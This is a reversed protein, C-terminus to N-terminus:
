TILPLPQMSELVSATDPLDLWAAASACAQHFDIAPRVDGEVLNDLRPPAGLFGGRVQGGLVM